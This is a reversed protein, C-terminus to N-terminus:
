STIMVILLSRPHGIVNPWLKTGLSVSTEVNTYFSVKAKKPQRPKHSGNSWLYLLLIILSQFSGRSGVSSRPCLQGEEARINLGEWGKHSEQFCPEQNKPVKAVIQQTTKGAGLCKASFGKLLM